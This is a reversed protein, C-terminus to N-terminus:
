NERGWLYADEFTVWAAVRRRLEVCRAPEGRAANRQERPDVALNFLSDRGSTVDYVYKWDGERVGFLDGGAIAFFYARQPHAPDFISHGQWDGSPAIGLLDAITPNLDVHGSVLPLRQGSPFLRPNWILLPVRTEEDFVSWAHGRQQHIDAFAEGHDGTVIVLTDDALGRERLAALLRGIAEDAHRLSELYRALDAALTPPVGKTSGSASRASSYPDHTQDTWCVAFFPENPAADIWQVLREFACRDETGWSSLLPCGLDAAGLLTQYDGGRELLWRQDNWDLDGSTFYGTRSGRERLLSSLTKPLPRDGPLLAYHWPLGPYVSFNIPRFSAYTFSAQAYFNDVVLANQAAATLNPTADEAAGYLGFYRAGVSELVVVIANRPRPTGAPLEFGGHPPTARGAFTRFEDLYDRPFEKPFSPREGGALRVFATRLLEVHPSLWLYELREHEFDRSHLLWGALIWIAAVALLAREVRRRRRVAFGTIFVFAPAACLAIAIPLTIRESLSSRIAGANGVLRLLDYTVPRNFYRFLGVAAVAYASFSAFLVLIFAHTMAGAIRRNRLPWVVISGIIGCAVAFLVDSWSAAVLTLLRAGFGPLANRNMTAAKAIVFVIALWCSAQLLSVRRDARPAATAAPAAREIM